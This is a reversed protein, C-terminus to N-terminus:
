KQGGERSHRPSKKDDRAAKNWIHIAKEGGMFSHYAASGRYDERTGFFLQRDEGLHLIHTAYQMAAQMDHSVMIVTIGMEKNIREILKYMHITVLPDLGAVPEDLLIVKKTACLARALLVRQQQGGSLDRYCRDKLDTIELAELNRAAKEKEERGYFLKMGMGSLCGSLVVEQVSAPFDKQVPTQQPLYGIERARLGDGLVVAGASPKKLGLLGKMLTSKGAGNEGLICLYDGQEIAFNLNRLVTVGEYAFALNECSILSM